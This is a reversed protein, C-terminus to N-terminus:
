IKKKSNKISKGCSSSFLMEGVGEGDKTEEGTSKECGRKFVMRRLGGGRKACRKM